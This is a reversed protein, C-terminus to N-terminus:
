IEHDFTAIALIDKRSKLCETAWVRIDNYIPLDSTKILKKLRKLNEAKKFIYLTDGNVFSCDLYIKSKKLVSSMERQRKNLKKLFIITEKIKGPKIKLM